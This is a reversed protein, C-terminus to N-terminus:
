WRHRANKDHGWGGHIRISKFFFIWKSLLLKLSDVKVRNISFNDNLLPWFPPVHAWVIVGTWGSSINFFCSQCSHFHGSHFTMNWENRGHPRYECHSSTGSKLQRSSSGNWIATSVRARLAHNFRKCFFFCWLIQCIKQTEVCLTGGCMCIWACVCM